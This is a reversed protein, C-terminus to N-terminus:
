GPRTTTATAANTFQPPPRRVPPDPMDDLQRLWESRHQEVDRLIVPYRHFFVAMWYPQYQRLEALAQEATWGCEVVRYIGVALGARDSGTACHVYVPGDRPANRVTKLFALHLERDGKESFPNDRLPLYNLGMRPVVKAESKNTRDNFNVVTTIGFEDRLERLGLRNPQGGRVLVGPVVTHVNYLHPSESPFHGTLTRSNYVYPDKSPLCGSVCGISILM